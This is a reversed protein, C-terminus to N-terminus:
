LATNRYSTYKVLGGYSHIKQSVPWAETAEPFLCCFFAKRKDFQSPAMSHVAFHFLGVAGSAACRHTEKRPLWHINIFIFFAWLWVPLDFSLKRFKLSRSEESLEGTLSTVASTKLWSGVAFCRSLWHRRQRLSSQFRLISWVICVLSPLSAFFSQNRGKFRSINTLKPYLFLVWASGENECSIHSHLFCHSTCLPSNVNKKRAKKQFPCNSVATFYPLLSLVQTKKLHTNLRLNLPIM